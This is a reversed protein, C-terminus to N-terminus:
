QGSLITIIERLYILHPEWMTDQIERVTKITILYDKDPMISM